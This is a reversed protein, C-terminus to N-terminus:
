IGEDFTSHLNKVGAPKRRGEILGLGGKSEFAEVGKV